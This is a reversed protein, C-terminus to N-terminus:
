AAQGKNNKMDIDIGESMLMAVSQSSLNAVEAM